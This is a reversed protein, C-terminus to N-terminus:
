LYRYLWDGFRATVKLPLQQWATSALRGAYGNVGRDGAGNLSTHLTPYYYRYLQVCRSAWKRKSQALSDNTTPVEGLDYRRFGESCADHIARWHIADNPRLHLTDLRSGNFAFFVTEGFMLMMSGALLVDRGGERREALLLRMYGRPQVIDWLAEFFRYPRPPVAHRRMTELYLRYWALLEDESEAPRVRVGSRTAKQIARKIAAHNRSKGFRLAEPDDPLEVLYSMRWRARVLGDVLGDLETGQAKLQLCAGPEDHVRGVAAHVLASAAAPDRALPGAVPTRPLSSLRRGTLPGGFPLGRTYYLPLIGRLEGEGDQCALSVSRGAYERGLTELWAPHHYILGAPHSAVFAEWREDRLPDVEVVHLPSHVTTPPIM